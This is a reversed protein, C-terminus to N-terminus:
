RKKSIVIAAAAAVMPLVALVIGTEPNKEAPTEDPTEGASMDDGAADPDNAGDAAEQPTQVDVTDEKYDKVIAFYKWQRIVDADATFTARSGNVQLTAGELIEWEDRVLVKCDATVGPAYVDVTIPGTVNTSPLKIEYVGIPQYEKTEEYIAGTELIAIDTNVPNGKSDTASWVYKNASSNPAVTSPVPPIVVSNDAFIEIGLSLALCLALAIALIKKM